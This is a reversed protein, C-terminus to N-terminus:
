LKDKLSLICIIIKKKYFINKLTKDAECTLLRSSSQDFGLAFVGLLTLQNFENFIIVANL